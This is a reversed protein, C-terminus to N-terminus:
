DFEPTDFIYENGANIRYKIMPEEEEPHLHNFLLEECDLRGAIAYYFFSIYVLASTMTSFTTGQQLFHM